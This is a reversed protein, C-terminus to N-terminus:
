KIAKGIEAAARVISRRTASDPDHVRSESIFRDTQIVPYARVEAGCFNIDIDLKVALRLADGDKELPNWQFNIDGMKCFHNDVLWWISKSMGAAKAALDLLEKDTM